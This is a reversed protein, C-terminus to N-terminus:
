FGYATHPVLSGNYSFPEPDMHKLYFNDDHLVRPKDVPIPIFDTASTATPHDKYGEPLGSSDDALRYIAFHPANSPKKPLIKTDQPKYMPNTKTGNIQYRPDAIYTGKKPTAHPYPYKSNKHSKKSAPPLGVEYGKVFVLLHIIFGTYGLIIM